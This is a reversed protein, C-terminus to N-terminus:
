RKFNASCSALISSPEGIHVGLVCINAVHRYYLFRLKREVVDRESGAHDRSEVLSRAPKHVVTLPAQLAFNANRSHAIRTISLAIRTISWDVGDTLVTISVATVHSLLVSLFGRAREERNAEKVWVCIDM